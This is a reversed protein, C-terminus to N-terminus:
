QLTGSVYLNKGLGAHSAQFTAAGGWNVVASLGNLSLDSVAKNQLDDSITKKLLSAITDLIFAGLLNSLVYDISPVHKSPVAIPDGTEHFALADKSPNLAVTSSSTIVDTISMGAHLDCYTHVELQLSDNAVTAAVSQLQPHYTILGWKKKGLPVPGKGVVRHEPQQFEITSPDIRFASPLVPGVVNKLFLDGSIAFFVNCKAEILTPDFQASLASCDDSSVLSLIVLYSEADGELEAYCYRSVKPALWGPGGHGAPNIEAFTYSLQSANAVLCEAMAIEFEGLMEDTLHKGADVVKTV